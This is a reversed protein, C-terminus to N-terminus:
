KGRLEAARQDIKRNLEAEQQLREAEDRDVRTQTRHREAYEFETLEAQKPALDRKKRLEIDFSHLDEDTALQRAVLQDYTTTGSLKKTLIPLCDVAILLLRLLWQGALVFNSKGSLRALAKDEEPLGIAGTTPALQGKIGQDIETAYATDSGTLQTHKDDIRRQLAGLERERDAIKHDARFQDVQDRDRRCNPGEGVVGSFEGGHKGNCEQRATKEMSALTRKDADLTQQKYKRDGDLKQLEDQVSAPSNTTTILLGHSRCHDLVRKDLARFPVPNCNKLATERDARDQVRDQAVQRHISPQFVKLLLPEAIVAGLLVSLALRVLFARGASSTGHTSAILWSDICVIVWGWLLAVPLLFPWWVDIFKGLAALMSLAAIIGTNLVIAGLRTYRAREEPVWDLIDEKIGTFRRLWRGPGNDAPEPRYANVPVGANEVPEHAGTPPVTPATM